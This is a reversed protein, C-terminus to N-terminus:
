LLYISHIYGSIGVTHPDPAEDIDGHTPNVDFPPMHVFCLFHCVFIDQNIFCHVHM